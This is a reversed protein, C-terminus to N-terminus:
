HMLATKGSGKSNASMYYLGQPLKLCFICSKAGIPSQLHANSSGCVTFGYPGKKMQRSMKTTQSSSNQVNRVPNSQIIDKVGAM